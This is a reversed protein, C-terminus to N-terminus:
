YHTGIAFTVKAFIIHYGKQLEAIIIYDMWKLILELTSVLLIISEERRSKKLPQM